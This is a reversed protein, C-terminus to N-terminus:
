QEVPSTVSFNVSTGADYENTGVPPVPSGIIVNDPGAFSNVIVQLKSTTTNVNTSAFTAYLSGTSTVNPWVFNTFALFPASNNTYALGGNTTIGSIGFGDGANIVFNTSDGYPVMATAPSVTGNTDSFSVIQELPAFKMIVRGYTQGNVANTINPLNVYAYGSSNSNAQTYSIVDDINTSFGNTTQIDATVLTNSPFPLIINFSIQNTTGSPIIGVYKLPCNYNKNTSLNVGATGWSNSNNDLYFIDLYSGQPPPHSGNSGNEKFKVYNGNLNPSAQSVNMSGAGNVLDPLMLSGALIGGFWKKLSKIGM